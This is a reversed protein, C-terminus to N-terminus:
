LLALLYCGLAAWEAPTASRTELKLNFLLLFALHAFDPYLTCAVAYLPLPTVGLGLLELSFGLSLYLLLTARSDNCTRRTNMQEKRYSYFQQLGSSCFVLVLGLSNLTPNIFMETGTNVAM